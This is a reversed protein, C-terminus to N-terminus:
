TDPKLRNALALLDADDSQPTPAPNKDLLADRTAREFQELQAIIKTAPESTTIAFWFLGAVCSKTSLM